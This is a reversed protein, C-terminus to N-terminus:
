IFPIYKPKDFNYKTFKFSDNYSTININDNNQIERCGREDTCDINDKIVPLKISQYGDSSTYYNYSNSGPYTQKGYIPLKNNDNYAFGVQQYDYSDGRTNINIRNNISSPKYTQEPPYLPDNIRKYRIDKKNINKNNYKLQNNIIYYNIFLVILCLIIFISKQFCFFGEPCTNM